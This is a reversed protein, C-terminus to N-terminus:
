TLFNITAMGSDVYERLEYLEFLFQEAVKRRVLKVDEHKVFIEEHAPEWIDIFTRQIWASLMSEM